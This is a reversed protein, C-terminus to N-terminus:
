ARRVTRCRTRLAPDNKELRWIDTGARRASGHRAHSRTTPLAHWRHGSRLKRPHMRATSQSSIMRRRTADVGRIALGAATPPLITLGPFRGSLRPVTSTQLSRFIAGGSFLGPSFARTDAATSRAQAQHGPGGCDRVSNRGTSEAAPPSDCREGRAGGKRESVVAADKMRTRPRRASKLSTFPDKPHQGQM